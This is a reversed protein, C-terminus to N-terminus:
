NFLNYYYKLIVIVVVIAAVVGGIVEEKNNEYYRWWDASSGEKTPNLHLRSLGKEKVVWEAGYLYRDRV